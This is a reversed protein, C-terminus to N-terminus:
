NKVIRKIVTGRETYLEVVYIGADLNSVNIRSNNNWKYVQQGSISYIIVNNLETEKTLKINLIDSVPNPSLSVDLKEFESNSLGKPIGNNDYACIVGSGFDIETEFSIPPTEGAAIEYKLNGGNCSVFNYIKNVNVIIVLPWSEGCGGQGVPVDFIPTSPTSQGNTKISTPCAIQSYGFFSMAIFMFALYIQKM